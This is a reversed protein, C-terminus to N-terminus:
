TTLGNVAAVSSSFSCFIKSLSFLCLAQGAGSARARLPSAGTKGSDGQLMREGQSELGQVVTGRGSQFSHAIEEGTGRVVTNAEPLYDVKGLNDHGCPM